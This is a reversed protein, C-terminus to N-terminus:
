SDAPNSVQREGKGAKGKGKGKGKPKGEIGKNQPCNLRNHGDKGLCKQCSHERLCNEMQCGKEKNFNWCIDNGSLPIKSYFQSGANKKEYQQPYPM